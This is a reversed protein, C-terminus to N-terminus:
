DHLSSLEAHECELLQDITDAPIQWYLRVSQKVVLRPSSLENRDGEMALPPSISFRFAHIGCV